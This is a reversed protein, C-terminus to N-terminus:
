PRTTQRHAELWKRPPLGEIRRFAKSLHYEDCFGAETAIHKLPYGRLLLNKAVMMRFRALTQMPTEGTEKRYRHSLTSPSVDVERAIGALRIPMALNARLFDRVAHVWPHVASPRPPGGARYTEEDLQEAALMEHLLAGFLSLVKWRGAKGLAQGTHAIEALLSGLADAPDEFAAFGSPGTLRHLRAEGGPADEPDM